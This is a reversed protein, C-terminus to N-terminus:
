PSSRAAALEATAAAFLEGIQRSWRKQDKRGTGHGTEADYRAQVDRLEAVAEEYAGQARDQLDRAAAEAGDGRGELALLRATLRRALAETADFHLQEHALVEDRKAAPAVASLFKDMVAYAEVDLATAVWSGDGDSRTHAQFPALEIASALHAWGGVDWRGATSEKGKFDDWTVRRYTTEAPNDLEKGLVPGVAVAAALVASLLTRLPM